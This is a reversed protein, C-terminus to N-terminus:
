FNESASTGKSGLVAVAIRRLGGADMARRMVEGGRGLRRLAEVGMGKIVISGNSGLLDIVPGLFGAELLADANGAFSSLALLCVVTPAATSKSLAARELFPLRLPHM